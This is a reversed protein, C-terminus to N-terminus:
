LQVVLVAGSLGLHEQARRVVEPLIVRTYHVEDDPTLPFADWEIMLGRVDRVEEAARLYVDCSNGDPTTWSGLLVRLVVRSV